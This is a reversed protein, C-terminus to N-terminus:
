REYDLMLAFINLVMIYSNKNKGLWQRVFWNFSEAWKARKRMGYWLSSAM